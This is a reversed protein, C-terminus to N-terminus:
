ATARRARAVAAFREPTPERLAYSSRGRKEAAGAAVLVSLARPVTGLAVRAGSPLRATRSATEAADATCFQAPGFAAWLARYVSAAATDRSPLAAVEAAVAGDPIDAPLDLEGQVPTDSRHGDLARAIREAARALRDLADLARAADRLESLTRPTNM